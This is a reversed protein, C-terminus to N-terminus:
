PLRREVVLMKLEPGAPIAVRARAGPSASCGYRLWDDADRWFEGPSISDIM